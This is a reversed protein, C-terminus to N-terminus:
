NDEAMLDQGTVEELEAVGFAMPLVKDMTM